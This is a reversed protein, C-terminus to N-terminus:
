IYGMVAGLPPVFLGVIRVIEIGDLTTYDGMCVALFNMVWGTMAAIAFLVSVAIFSKLARLKSKNDM